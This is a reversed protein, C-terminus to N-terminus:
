LDKMKSYKEAEGYNIETGLGKKYCTAVLSACEKKAKRDEYDTRKNLTFDAGRKLYYFAKAYDKPVGELGYFYTMGISYCTLPAGSQTAKDLLELGKNIDKEVYDGMIYQLGLAATAHDEGNDSSKTLLEIAKKTDKQVGQGEGYMVALLACSNSNGDKEISKEFWEKAKAYDQPTGRGNYYAKGLRNLATANGKEAAQLWYEIAKKDDINVYDGIAYSEGVEFLGRPDGQKAASSVLEFYRKDDKPVLVGNYYYIAAKVQHKPEGKSAMMMDYAYNIIRILEKTKEKSNEVSYPDIGNNDEKDLVLIWNGKKGKKLTGEETFNIGDVNVTNVKFQINGADNLENAIEIQYNSYLPSTELQEAMLSSFREIDDKSINDVSDPVIYKLIESYDGKDAAKYIDSVADNANKECATLLTLIVASLITLNIRFNM